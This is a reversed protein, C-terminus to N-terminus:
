EIGYKGLGGSKKLAQYKATPVLDGDMSKFLGADILEASSMKSKEQPGRKAKVNQDIFKPAITKETVKGSMSEVKQGAALIKEPGKKDEIMKNAASKASSVPLPESKLRVKAM